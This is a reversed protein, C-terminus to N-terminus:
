GLSLMSSTKHASSEHVTGGKLVYELVAMRMFVGNRVQDRIRSREHDILVSEIEIGRNVPGPHMIIAHPKLSKLRKLTLGHEELYRDQEWTMNAELRERQVRLMLIVDAVRLADEFPVYPAIREIDADRFVDPGSVIPRAGLRALGAVHSRAVRSHCVDGIISVTLDHLQGFTQRMTLWDLLAQTPHALKGNGANILAMNLKGRLEDYVHDHPHRLVTVHVGMAELTQMTDWLSEGKVVSSVDTDFAIVDLGLRQAAMVFSCRTRTSPEYFVPAMVKGQLSHPKIGHDQRALQEARDLLDHITDTSLSDITLLEHATM